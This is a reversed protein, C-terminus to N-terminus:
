TGVPYIGVRIGLGVGVVIWSGVGVISSNVSEVGVVALWAVDIIV